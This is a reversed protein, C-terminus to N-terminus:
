GVGLLEFAALVDFGVSPRGCGRKLLAKRTLNLARAHAFDGQPNKLYNDLFNAAFEAGETDSVPWRAAIVSRIGHAALEISLGEIESEENEHVRGVACAVLFVLDVHSLVSGIQGRWLGDELYVGYKNHDGHGGIVVITSQNKDRNFISNIETGKSVPSADGRPFVRCGHQSAIRDLEVHLAPLGRAFSDKEPLWQASLIKQPVSCTVASSDLQSRMSLSVAISTSAVQETLPRGGFDLWSV